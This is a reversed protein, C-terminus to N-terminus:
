ARMRWITGYSAMGLSELIRGATEPDQMVATAGCRIEVVSPNAKGWAIMNKMLRRPDRPEVDERAVWFLDSAMLRDGISYVRSLIGVVLGRVEGDTESVQVFAEGGHKQVAFALLRTAEADDMKASGERAYISREYAWRLVSRMAPIDSFKADRTM